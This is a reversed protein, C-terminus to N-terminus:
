PRAALIAHSRGGLSLSLGGDEGVRLSRGGEEELLVGALHPARLTVTCPERSFNLVVLVRDDNAERSFALVEDNDAPVSRYDGSRLAEHRRRLGALATILEGMWRPRTWDVDVKDHHDLRRDNAVEEGTFILPVGPLTFVLVSALRLGDRGYREVAPADWYNKDHNTAFRLRLSGHPFTREEWRLAEHVSSAPREGRLLSPLIDYINWAYSLDFAELHHEPLTGEALMMVPRIADLRRRAAEWFDLPVLEAVDCRFGDVGVEEVWWSMMEMMYRRLAPNSYDLDAVDYWKPSPSVVEGAADRTYWDPHQALLPNDWSTHNAVLDLILHMGEAHVAAVLSRFEDMTGLEPNIGYFDRVSYPSGLTGKRKLEGIPHIPLLWLVTVGMRKLEPLRRRLGEFTGEPSFSRLYVCYIVADRVWPASERAQRDAYPGRLVEDLHATEVLTVPKPIGGPGGHDNVLVVLLNEGPHLAASADVSFPESHGTHSAVKTGNIWVEADDDVGAFHLSTPPISDPMVILRAYWGWGDADHLGPLSEWTSPLRVTTWQSRDAGPAYWRQAVGERAPDHRFLWVGDLRVNLEPEPLCGM